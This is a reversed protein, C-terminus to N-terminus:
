RTRGAEGALDEIIERVSRSRLDARRSSYINATQPRRAARGPTRLLLLRNIEVQIAIEGPLGLRISRIGHTDADYLYM